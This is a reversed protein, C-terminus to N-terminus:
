YWSFAWNCNLILFLCCYNMIYLKIVKMVNMSSPLMEVIQFNCFNVNFFVNGEIIISFLKFFEFRLSVNSMQTLKKCRISRYFLFFDASSKRKMRSCPWSQSHAELHQAKDQMLQEITTGLQQQRTWSAPVGLSVFPIRLFFINKRSFISILTENKIFIYM